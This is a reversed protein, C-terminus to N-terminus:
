SVTVYGHFVSLGFTLLDLEEPQWELTRITHNRDFSDGFFEWLDPEEEMM